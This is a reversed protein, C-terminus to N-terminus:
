NTNYEIQGPKEVMIKRGAAVFGGAPVRNTFIAAPAVAFFAAQM